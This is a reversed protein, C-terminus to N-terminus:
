TINVQLTFALGVILGPRIAFAAELKIFDAFARQLNESMGAVGEAISRSLTTLGIQDDSEAFLM